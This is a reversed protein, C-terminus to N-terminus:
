NFTYHITHRRTDTTDPEYIHIIIEGQSTQYGSSYRTKLLALDFYLNETILARCMDNNSHHSLQLNVQVPNSEMFLGNWYLEFDHEKCGGGYRTIIHLVDKAIAADVVIAPDFYLESNDTKINIKKAWGSDDNSDSSNSVICGSLWTISIISILFIIKDM